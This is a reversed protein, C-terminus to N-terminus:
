CYSFFFFRILFFCLLGLCAGWWLLYVSPLYTSSFFFWWINDPLQLDFCPTGVRCSNFHGSGLVSVVDFVPSSISCCSSENMAPPFAFHYLWKLLYFVAQYNRICSFISIMHELSWVGQFIGLHDMFKPRCLFGCM